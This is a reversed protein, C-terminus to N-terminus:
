NGTPYTNQTLGCRFKLRRSSRDVACLGGSGNTTSAVPPSILCSLLHWGRDMADKIADADSNDVVSTDYEENVFGDDIKKLVGSSGSSGALVAQNQLIYLAIWTQLLDLQEATLDAIVVGLCALKKLVLAHVSLLQIQPEPLEGATKGTIVLLEAYTIVGPVIDAM